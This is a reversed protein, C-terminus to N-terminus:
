KAKTFGEFGAPILEDSRMIVDEITLKNASINAIRELGEKVVVELDFDDPVKDKKSQNEPGLLLQFNTYHNMVRLQEANTKDTFRASPIIHDVHVLHSPQLEQGYRISYRKRLYDVFHNAEVGFDADWKARTFKTGAALYKNIRGRTANDIQVHRRRTITDGAKVMDLRRERSAVSDANVGDGNSDRYRQSRENETARYEETFRMTRSVRYVFCSTLRIGMVFILIVYQTQAENRLEQMFFSIMRYVAPTSSLGHKCKAIGNTGGSTRYKFLCIPCADISNKDAGHIVCAECVAHITTDCDAKLCLPFTTRGIKVTRLLPASFPLNPAIATLVSSVFDNLRNTNYPKCFIMVLEELVRKQLIPCSHLTISVAALTSLRLHYGRTVKLENNKKADFILKEAAAMYPADHLNGIATVYDAIHKSM